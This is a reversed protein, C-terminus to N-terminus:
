SKLDLLVLNIHVKREDDDSTDTLKGNRVNKVYRLM